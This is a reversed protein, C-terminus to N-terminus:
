YLNHWVCQRFCEAAASEFLGVDGGIADSNARCRCEARRCFRKGRGATRSLSESEQLSQLIIGGDLKGIRMPRMQLQEYKYFKSKDSKPFHIKSLIKQSILDDRISTLFFQLKKAFM